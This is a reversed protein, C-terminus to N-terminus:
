KVEKVLSRVDIAIFEKHAVALIVVDFKVETLMANVINIGYKHKVYDKYRRRAKPLSSAHSHCASMFETTM